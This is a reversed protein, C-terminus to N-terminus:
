WERDEPLSKRDYGSIGCSREADHGREPPSGKFEEANEKGGGRCGHVGLYKM